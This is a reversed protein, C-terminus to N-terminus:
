VNKIVFILIIPICELIYTCYYVTGARIQSGQPPALEPPHHGPLMLLSYLHIKCYFTTSFRIAIKVIRITPEWNSRIGILKNDLVM